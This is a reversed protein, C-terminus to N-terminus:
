QTVWFKDNRNYGINSAIKFTHDFSVTSAISIRDINQLYMYEDMLFSAVFLKTIINNSPFESLFSKSFDLGAVCTSKNM